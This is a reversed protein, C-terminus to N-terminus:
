GHGIFDSMLCPAIKAQLSKRNLIKELPIGKSDIKNVTSNVVRTFKATPENPLENGSRGAGSM